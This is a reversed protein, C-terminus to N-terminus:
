QWKCPRLGGPVHRTVPSSIIIVPHGPQSFTPRILATALLQLDEEPLRRSLTTSFSLSGHRDFTACAFSIKAIPRFLSYLSAIPRARARPKPDRRSIWIRKSHPRTVRSYLAAGFGFQCTVFENCTVLMIECAPRITVKQSGLFNCSARLDIFWRCVSLFLHRM